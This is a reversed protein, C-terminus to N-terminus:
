QITECMALCRETAAASRDHCPGASREGWARCSRLHSARGAICRLLCPKRREKRAEQEAQRRERRREAASFEADQIALEVQEVPACAQEQQFAVWSELNSLVPSVRDATQEWYSCREPTSLGEPEQAAIEKAMLTEYTEGTRKTVALCAPGTGRLCAKKAYALAKVWDGQASTYRALDWCPEGSGEDACRTRLEDRYSRQGQHSERPQEKPPVYAVGTCGALLLATVATALATQKTWPWRTPDHRQNM